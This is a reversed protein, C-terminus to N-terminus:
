NESNHIIKASTLPTLLLIAIIVGLGNAIMMPPIATKIVELADSFPRAILLTLLGHLIEVLIALGAGWYFKILRGRVFKYVLGCILGAAITAVGCSINTFGGM